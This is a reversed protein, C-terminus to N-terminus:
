LLDLKMSPLSVLFSALPKFSINSLPHIDPVSFYHIPIGEKKTISCVKQRPLRKVSHELYHGPQLTSLSCSVTTSIIGMGHFTGQGYLTAINHDVIDGSWQTISEPFSEPRYQEGVQVPSQKFRNIEGYTIFYGLRALKNIMSECGFESDLSVIVGFLM